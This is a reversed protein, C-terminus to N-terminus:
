LLTSYRLKVQEYLINIIDFVVTERVANRDLDPYVLKYTTEISDMYIGVYVTGSPIDKNNSRGAYGTVSVACTADTKKILGKCMEKAVEASVVDYHKITEEKVGLINIKSENSYTVYSEYIVKSASPVSIIEAALLGGTCSEAFSIKWGLKIFMEVLENTKTNM